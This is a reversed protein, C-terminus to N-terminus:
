AIGDIIYDRTNFSTPKDLMFIIECARVMESSMEECRQGSTQVVHQSNTHKETRSKRMDERLLSLLRDGVCYSHSKKQYTRKIGEVYGM